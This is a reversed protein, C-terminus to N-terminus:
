WPRPCSAPPACRGPSCSSGRGHRGQGIGSGLRACLLQALQQVLRGVGIVDEICRLHLVRDIVAKVPLQELKLLVIWLQDAGVTRGLAHPPRWRCSEAANFVADPQEAEVVREVGLLQLGPIFPQSTLQLLALALAPLKDAFELDVAIGQGQAVLM